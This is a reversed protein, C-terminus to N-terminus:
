WNVPARPDVVPDIIWCPIPEQDPGDDVETKPHSFPIFTEGDNVSEDDIWWGIEDGGEIPDIGLLDYFRNLSNEGMVALNRNLHLEAQLVKSITSEFYRSSIRDYFLRREEVADEFDFTSSTFGDASYITWDEDVKQAALERLIREHTEQGCIEKVKDTYRDYQKAMLNYAAVLSAQQKRNLANSGFICFITAAGVAAAPVYCTWASKIKEQFTAADPNGDHNKRSDTQIKELAKPTAKVALVATGVVGVSAVFAVLTPSSHKLRRALSQFSRPKRHRPKM